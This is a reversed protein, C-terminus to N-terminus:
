FRGRQVAETAIQGLQTRASTWQALDRLCRRPEMDDPLSAIVERDYYYAAAKDEEFKLKRSIVAPGVQRSLAIEDITAEFGLFRARFTQGPKRIAPQNLRPFRFRTIRTADDRHLFVPALWKSKGAEIKIKNMRAPQWGEAIIELSYDDGPPLGTLSCRGTMWNRVIANRVVQNERRLVARVDVLFANEEGSVTFQLDGTPADLVHFGEIRCGSGVSTFQDEIRLVHSGQDLGRAITLERPTAQPSIRRLQEGDIYAVISGLNPSGYAPVANDGLRVVIGTGHFRIALAAGNESTVLHKAQAYRFSTERWAGLQKVKSIDLASIWAREGDTALPEEAALVSQKLEFWSM